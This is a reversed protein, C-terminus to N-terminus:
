MTCSKQGIRFGDVRIGVLDTTCKYLPFLSPRRVTHVFNGGEGHAERSIDSRITNGGACLVEEARVGPDGGGAVCNMQWSYTPIHALVYEQIHEDM